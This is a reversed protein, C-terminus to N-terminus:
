LKPYGNHITKPEPVPVPNVVFKAVYLYVAARKVPHLARV